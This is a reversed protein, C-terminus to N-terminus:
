MDVIVRTVRHLMWHVLVLPTEDPHVPVRVCRAIREEILGLLAAEAPTEASSETLSASRIQRDYKLATTWRPPATCVQNWPKHHHLSDGGEAWPM